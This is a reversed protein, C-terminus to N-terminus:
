RGHDEEKPRRPEQRVSSFHRDPVICDGVSSALTEIRKKVRDLHFLGGDPNVHIFADNIGFPGDTGFNWTYVIKEGAGIESPCHPAGKNWSNLLIARIAAIEIPRIVLFRRM